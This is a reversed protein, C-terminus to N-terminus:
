DDPDGFAVEGDALQQLRKPARDLPMATVTPAAWEVDFFTDRVAAPLSGRRVTNPNIIRDVLKRGDDSRVWAFFGDPDICREVKRRQRRWVTEGVRVAGGDGLVRGAQTQAWSRLAKVTAAVAALKAELDVLQHVVTVPDDDMDALGLLDAVDDGDVWDAGDVPTWAEVLEHVVSWPIPDAM